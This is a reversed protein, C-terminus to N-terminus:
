GCTPTTRHNYVNLGSSVINLFPAKPRRRSIFDILVNIRACPAPLPCPPPPPNVPPASYPNTTIPLSSRQVSNLAITRVSPSPLRHRRQQMGTIAWLYNHVCVPENHEAASTIPLLEDVIHVNLHQHVAKSFSGGHQPHDIHLLLAGARVTTSTNDSDVCWGSSPSQQQKKCICYVGGGGLFHIGQPISRPLVSLLALPTYITPPPYIKPPLHQM